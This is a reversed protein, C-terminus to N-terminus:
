KGLVLSFLIRRESFLLFLFSISRIGQVAVKEEPSRWRKATFCLDVQFSLYPDRSRGGFFVDLKKERRPRRLPFPTIKLRSQNLIDAQRVQAALTFLFIM